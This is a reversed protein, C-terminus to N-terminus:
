APQPFHQAIALPGAYPRDPLRELARLVEVGLGQLRAAELLQPKSAPYPLEALLLRVLRKNSWVYRRSPVALCGPM